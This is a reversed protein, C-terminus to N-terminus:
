YPKYIKRSRTSRFKRFENRLDMAVNSTSDPSCQSCYDDDLPSKNDIQKAGGGAGGGGGGGCGRANDIMITTRAANFAASEIQGPMQCKTPAEAQLPGLLSYPKERADSTGYAFRDIAYHRQAQQM